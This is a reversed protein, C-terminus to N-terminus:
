AILIHQFCTKLRAIYFHTIKFRRPKSHKEELESVIDDNVEYVGSDCEATLLKLAANVKGALM